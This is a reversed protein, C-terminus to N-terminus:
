LYIEGPIHKKIIEEIFSSSYKKGCNDCDWETRDPFVNHILVTGCECVYGARKTPVGMVLTHKPVNKTVVSGAGVFANEGVTVGCIITCNAGLTAGKKILTKQYCSNSTPFACRPKKVNTFVMSPGCFVDAEIEVCEYVSVNNQIHVNNGIKVNADIYVNQGIVCNKGIIVSERIHSFHWVKTGEGIEAGKDVVATEHIM